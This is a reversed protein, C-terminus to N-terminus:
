FRRNNQEDMYENIKKKEWDKSVFLNMGFTNLAQFTIGIGWYFWIVYNHYNTFAEMFTDRDNIDGSIFIATLFINVVIYIVLHKYFKSLKKVRKRALVYQQEKTFEKEM